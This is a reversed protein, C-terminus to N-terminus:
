EKWSYTTKWVEALCVSSHFRYFITLPSFSRVLFVWSRKGYFNVVTESVGAKEAELLNMLFMSINALLLFTIAQKGPQRERLIPDNGVRLKGAIYILCSQLAVEIIRTVHVALLIITLPQWNPDGTLGLLGAVSYIMEGTMGFALLIMDLLEHVIDTFGFVTAALQNQGMITYGSFVAMSTFTGALFALGFFLGTTSKSCDLRIRHKRPVYGFREVPNEVKGINRWVIFMVAAGILSYEVISTYMVENFSALVCEAGECKRMLSRRAVNSEQSNEENLLPLLSNTINKNLNNELEESGWDDNGGINRAFVQRIEDGMLSEEILIYRIWIWLNTAVLHMTGFRCITQYQSITLKWNCFVFHMQTFVFIISLLDLWILYNQQCTTDSICLFVNFAYYVTGIVGFVVCGLRLFLSGASPSSHSVLEKIGMNRRNKTDGSIIHSLEFVLSFITALMAYFFSLAIM